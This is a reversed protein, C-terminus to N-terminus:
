SFLCQIEPKGVVKELAYIFEAVKESRQIDSHITANFIPPNLKLTERGMM